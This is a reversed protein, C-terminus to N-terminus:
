LILVSSKTLTTETKECFESVGNRSSQFWVNRNQYWTSNVGQVNRNQQSTHGEYTKFTNLFINPDTYGM